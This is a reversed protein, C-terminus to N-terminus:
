PNTFCNGAVCSIGHAHFPVVHELPYTDLLEFNRADLIIVASTDTNANYTISLLVGDDEEELSVPSQQNRRRRPIFDAETVFTAEASWEKIIVRSKSDIKVIRDFWRYSPHCDFM